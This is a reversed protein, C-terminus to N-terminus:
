THVWIYGGIGADGTAARRQCRAMYGVGQQTSGMYIESNNGQDIFENGVHGGNSTWIFCHEGYNAHNTIQIYMSGQASTTKYTAPCSASGLDPRCPMCPSAPATAAPCYFGTVLVIAGQPVVPGMQAAPAVPAASASASGTPVLVAFLVFLAGFLWRLRNV